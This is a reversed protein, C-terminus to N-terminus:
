VGDELVGVATGSREHSVEVSTREKVGHGEVSDCGPTRSEAEKDRWARCIVGLLDIM